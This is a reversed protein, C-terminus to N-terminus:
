HGSLRLKALRLTTRRTCTEHAVLPLLACRAECRHLERLAQPLLEVRAVAARVRPNRALAGAYPAVRLPPVLKAPAVRHVDNHPPALDALGVVLRAARRKECSM